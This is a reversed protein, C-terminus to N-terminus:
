SAPLNGAWLVSKLYAKAVGLVDNPSKAMDLGNADVASSDAFTGNSILDRIL